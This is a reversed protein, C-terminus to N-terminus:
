SVVLFAEGDTATGAADFTHVRVKRHTVIECTALRITARNPFVQAFRIRPPYAAGDVDEYGTAWEVEAIGTSVLSVTPHAFGHQGAYARVTTVGTNIGIKAFPVTAVIAMMDACTRAHQAASLGDRHSTLRLPLPAFAGFM